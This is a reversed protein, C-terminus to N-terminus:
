VKSVCGVSFIVCWLGSVRHRPVNKPNWVWSDEGYESVIIKRWFAEKEVRFRCLWKALLAWNHLDLNGLGLDWERKPKIVKNWKILYINRRDFRGGM